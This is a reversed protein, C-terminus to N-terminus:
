ANSPSVNKGSISIVFQFSIKTSFPKVSSFGMYTNNGHIHSVVIIFLNIHSNADIKKNINVLILKYILNSLAIIIPLM